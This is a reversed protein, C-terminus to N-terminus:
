FMETKVLEGDVYLLLTADNNKPIFYWIEEGPKLYDDFLDYSVGYGNLRVRVRRKLFGRDLRYRFLGVGTIGDFAAQDTNGPRRNVSLHIRGGESIRSGPPPQQGIVANLSIDRRFASTIDGIRLNIEEVVAITEDLSRGKLDPMKYFIPRKGMSILLDACTGRETSGGAPPEHAIIEDRRNLGSFTLSQEGLCLGNEEIIIRAQPLSLGKLNPMLVSKAGKSIIIRVDRDKKIEAGPVPEQFIVHNPPIDASYESGKVKTNLGLDTLSQLVYVVDKGVLDPVVVTGGSKVFFTLTFYTSVGAVLIAASFLV